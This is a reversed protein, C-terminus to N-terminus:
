GIVAPADPLENTDDPRPPFHRAILESVRRIGAIAGAEFRGARLETEMARCVSEWEEQAVLEGFGRDAVIEIDREALLLYILVGNNAHTDWVRLAAFLEHARARADVGARLREIDLKSEVAFRIEGSHLSESERVAAQIADLTAQPFARRLQWRTTFLHRLVRHMAKVRPV